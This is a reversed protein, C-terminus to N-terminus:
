FVKDHFDGFFLFFGSYAQEVNEVNVPVRAFFIVLRAHVPVAYQEIGGVVVGACVSDLHHVAAPIVVVLFFVDELADVVPEFFVEAFIM